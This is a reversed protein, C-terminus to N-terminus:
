DLETIEAIETVKHRMDTPVINATRNVTRAHKETRTQQRMSALAYLLPNQTSIFFVELPCLWFGLLITATGNSMHLGCLVFQFFSPGDRDIQQLM